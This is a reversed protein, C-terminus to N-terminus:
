SQVTVLATATAALVQAATEVEDASTYEDATHAQELHGPGFLVCHQNGLAASIIAADTYAPFGAHKIERGVVNRFAQAFAGLLPSDPRTEVPPRDITVVSVNVSIGPVTRAANEVVERIMEEASTTTIPPVLRTDVEAWAYDPVVNTKKGAAMQGITISAKGLQPHDHPLNAFREKLAVIAAALGHAADAGIHPTGAHSMKGKTEVRYWMVGKQAVVLDLATPETAVILSDKNVLGKEVLRMAGQMKPGEEDITACVLFDRTPKIGAEVVQKLAIMIAALGGKMDSAGRGYIRGEKLVGGFPDETWGSGAPVTDTHGLYFLAPGGTGRLRAIVNPRGPAIEDVIVEVGLRRFWEAVFLACEQETGTPNESHIRVLAQTLGVASDIDTMGSAM